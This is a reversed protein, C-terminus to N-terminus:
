GLYIIGDHVTIEVKQLRTGTCPGVVCLGDERRFLAGHTGCCLHEGRADLFRRSGADIPIPLHTCRNRYAKPQGTPDILVLAEQKRGDSDPPLAVAWVEHPGLDDLRGVRIRSM